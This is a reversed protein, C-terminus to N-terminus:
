RSRKGLLAIPFGSDFGVAFFHTGRPQKRACRFVTWIWALYRFAASRSRWSAHMVNRVPMGEARTEEPLGFKWIEFDIEMEGLIQGLKHIRPRERLSEQQVVIIVREPLAVGQM